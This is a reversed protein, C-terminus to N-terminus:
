ADAIAGKNKAEKAAIAAARDAARQHYYGLAFVGQSSMDLSKPFNPLKSGMMMTEIQEQRKTPNVAADPTLLAGIAVIIEQLRTDIANHTSPREKRLKALHARSRRLLVPFVKAPTSSASGYYRDILTANVKGLAARQAGELEALLRGCHYAVREPDPLNPTPNLSEMDTMPVGQKTLILKILAARAHKVDGEARNRNVARTLLNSPLYDWKLAVRMLAAPISATMEKSADRYASYALARVSFPRGNQGYADVIDQANFWRRLNEEAEPITTELWDRVVARGGSASLALAYFQNADSEHVQKGHKPADFLNKVTKPDPEEVYSLFDFDTAERTWFVYVLPGVYVRTDKTAILHNLAKGYHEAAKRSIPSTLANELGYSTFPGKNASVLSIGAPQGGPINKIKVPLRQEVPGLKGTVLCTMRPRTDDEGGSTYSAWFEKVNELEVAPIVSDVRFTMVDEPNFDNPLKALDPQWTQLFVDIAKVSPEGTEAACKHVLNIFQQHRERVADLDQDPRPVGLTYEGNDALLKPKIARARIVDPVRYIIGRKDAKGTGGLPTFGELTGDQRLEIIWRIRTEGYMEPPLSMQTDAFEKLKSLIM